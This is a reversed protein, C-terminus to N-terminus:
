RLRTTLRRDIHGKMPPPADHLADLLVDLSLSPPRPSPYVVPRPAAAVGTTRAIAVDYKGEALLDYIRPAGPVRALLAERVSGSVAGAIKEIAEALARLREENRQSIHNGAQWHHLTRRSVGILPALAEITLGSAQKIRGLARTAPSPLATPSTKRASPHWPCAWRRWGVVEISFDTPSSTCQYGGLQSFGSNTFAGLDEDLTFFNLGIRANDMVERIERPAQTSSLGDWGTGLARGLARYAEIGRYSGPLDQEITTHTTTTM